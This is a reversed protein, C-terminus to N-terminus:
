LSEKRADVEPSGQVVAELQLLLGLDDANVWIASVRGEALTLVDITRIAVSRGTPQLIGLPTPYPGTHIGRMVFALGVAGNGDVAGAGEVVQLVESQLDSLGANLARARAVLQEITFAVGNVSVPDAYFEAFDKAPDERDLSHTWLRVLNQLWEDM